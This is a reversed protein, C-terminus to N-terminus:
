VAGIADGVLFGTVSFTAAFSISYAVSGLFIRRESVPEGGIFRALAAVIIANALAAALTYWADSGRTIWSVPHRMMRGKRMKELRTELRKANGAIWSEWQRQIWNCCAINLLTLLAAAGAFVILPNLFAALAAVPVGALLSDFVAYISIATGVV